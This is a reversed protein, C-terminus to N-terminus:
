ERYIVRELYISHIPLQCCGTLYRRRYFTLALFETKDRIDNLFPTFLQYQNNIINCKM